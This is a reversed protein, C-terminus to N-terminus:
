QPIMGNKYAEIVADSYGRKKMQDMIHSYIKELALEQEKSEIQVKIKKVVNHSKDMVHYEVIRPTFETM